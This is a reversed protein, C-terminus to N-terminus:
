KRWKSPDNVKRMLALISIVSLIWYSDSQSTLTIQVWNFTKRPRIVKKLNITPLSVYATEMEYYRAEDFLEEDYGSYYKELTGDILLKKMQWLKNKLQGDITIELTGKCSLFEFYIKKIKAFSMHSADFQILPTKIKVEFVEGEDDNYKSNLEMLQGRYEGTSPRFLLHETGNQDTYSLFYDASVEWAKIWAKLELDLIWIEDNHQHKAPVTFFLKGDYYIAAIQKINTNPIARIDPRVALSVEDTSLVNMLDPKAGTTYVGQANFYFLNNKAELVSLPAATGYSGIVRAVVPVIFTSTGVTMTSLTVQNQKGFGDPTTMFVTTVNEGKGDRYGQVVVPISDMGKDIEVWGGGYFASFASLNKGVGGWYVKNDVGVGWLRNDSYSLTKLIPGGTTDDEPASISINTQYKGDDVYKTTSETSAGVSDIYSEGGSMDSWYINYRDAGVVNTWELTINQSVAGEGTTNKWSDRAVNVKIVSETSAITEGVDNIASVKYYQCFTGNSLNTSKSLTPASPRGIAAFKHVKNTLIDYYAVPDHGNAIWVKNDLQIMSAKHGVTLTDSGSAAAQWEGGNSSTFINGDCISILYQNQQEDTFTADGDIAGNLAPTYSHSGWRKTPLGDMTLMANKSLVLSNNANRTEDLFSNYGGKWETINISRPTPAAGTLKPPKAIAM